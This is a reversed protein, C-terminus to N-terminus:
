PFLSIGVVAVSAQVDRQSAAPVSGSHSDVGKAGESAVQDVEPAMVPEHYIWCDGVSAGDGAVALDAELGDARHTAVFTAGVAREVVREEHVEESFFEVSPRFRATADETVLDRDVGKQALDEIRKFLDAGACNMDSRLEEVAARYVAAAARLRGCERRVLGGRLTGADVAADGRGALTRPARMPYILREAIPEREQSDDPEFETLVTM